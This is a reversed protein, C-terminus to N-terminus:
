SRAWSVLLVLSFLGFRCLFFSPFFRISVFSRHFAAALVIHLSVFSIRRLFSTRSRCGAFLSLSFFHFLVVSWVSLLLKLITIYVVIIIIINIPLLGVAVCVCVSVIFFLNIQAM